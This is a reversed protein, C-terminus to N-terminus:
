ADREKYVIRTKMTQGAADCAQNFAITTGPALDEDAWGDYNAVNLGRSSYGSVGPASAILWEEILNTKGAEKYLRVTLAKTESVLVRWSCLRWVRGVPVTYLKEVPAGASTQMDEPPETPRVDAWCFSHTM